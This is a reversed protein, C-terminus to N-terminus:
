NGGQCENQHRELVRALKAGYTSVATRWGRKYQDIYLRKRCPRCYVYLVTLNWILQGNGHDENKPYNFDLDYKTIGLRWGQRGTGNLESM